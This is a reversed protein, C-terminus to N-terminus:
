RTAESELADHNRIYNTYAAGSHGTALADAVPHQGAPYERSECLQGVPVARRRLRHEVQERNRPQPGLGPPGPEGVDGRRWRAAFGKEVQHGPNAAPEVQLSLRSRHNRHRM